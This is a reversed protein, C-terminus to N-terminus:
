FHAGKSAQGTRTKLAGCQVMSTVAPKQADYVVGIGNRDDQLHAMCSFSEMLDAYLALGV